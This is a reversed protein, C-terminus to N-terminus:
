NGVKIVKDSLKYLYSYSCGDLWLAGLESFSFFFRITKRNAM